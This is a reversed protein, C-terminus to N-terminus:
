TETRDVDRVPLVAVAADPRALNADAFSEVTTRKADSRDRTQDGGNRQHKKHHLEIDVARIIAPSEYPLSSEPVVGSEHFGRFPRAFSEWYEGCCNLERSQARDRNNRHTGM